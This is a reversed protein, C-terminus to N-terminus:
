TTPRLCTRRRVRPLDGLVDGRSRRDLLRPRQIRDSMFSEIEPTNVCWRQTTSRRSLFIKEPRDHSHEDPRLGAYLTEWAEALGPDVYFPNEMQPMAAVLSEVTVPEDETVWLIDNIPVGLAQLIEAKWPPLRDRGRQHTMVVRLDPNQSRAIQWGWRKSITETM